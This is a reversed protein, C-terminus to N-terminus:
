ALSPVSSINILLFFISDTWMTRLAEQLPVLVFAFWVSPEALAFARPHHLMGIPLVSLLTDALSSSAQSELGYTM